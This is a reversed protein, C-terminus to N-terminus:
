RHRKPPPPNILQRDSCSNPRYWDWCRRLAIRPRTARLTLPSMIETRLKTTGRNKLGGNAPCPCLMTRRRLAALRKTLGM